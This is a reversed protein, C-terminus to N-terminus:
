KLVKFVHIIPYFEYANSIGDSQHQAIFIYQREPDYAVGQIRRADTEFPLELEWRDYPVVDWPDKAGRKVELLDNADYAWVQYIYPYGHVGKSSDSPDYCYVNGQGDSSGHLSFESTGTGYCTDGEGTLGLGHRGFFLLTDSNEPFVLGNLETVRNYYLSIGDYTGLTPHDMPYGVLFEAPAPGTNGLMEPDVGWACPGLSSRAIIAIAGKGTLVPYSLKSQWDLPVHAMYGGVFGGNADSPNIPHLGVQYMGQFNGGETAWKISATFHSRYAESAGDYYAFSTGILKDNYVLLGGPVGGNTIATGDEKLNDWQSNTIDGPEQVLSATALEEIEEVIAASPISIEVALNESYRSIMILSNNLANYTLGAGGRALTQPYTSDGGLNERPVRFAGLYELDKQFILRSSVSGIAKNRLLIFSAPNYTLEKSVGACSCGVLLLSTVTFSFFTLRAVSGARERLYTHLLNNM